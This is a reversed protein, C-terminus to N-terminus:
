TLMIYDAKIIILIILNSWKKMKVIKMEIRMKVMLAWYSILIYQKWHNKNKLSNKILTKIM